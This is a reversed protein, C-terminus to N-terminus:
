EEKIKYNLKAWTENNVKELTVIGMKELRKLLRWATTRPLGLDNRIEAQKARGGRDSLYLILTNDDENLNFKESLEEISIEGTAITKVRKKKSFLIPSAGIAVGGVFALLVSGWNTETVVQTNTETITIVEEKHPFVYNIYQEGPPMKISNESISLPIGSLGVIVSDEPLIVEASYNFPLHVTWVRGEKSTLEPTLFEVELTGNTTPYVVFEGDELFLPVEKENLKASLESFEYVPLPIVFRGPTVNMVIKVLCYGDDYVVVKVKQASVVPLLLLLLLIIAKKM